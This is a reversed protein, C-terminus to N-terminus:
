ATPSKQYLHRRCVRCYWGRTTPDYLLVSRCYPCVAVRRPPKSVIKSSIGAAFVIASISVSVVVAVILWLGFAPAPPAEVHFYALSSMAATHTEDGEWSATVNWSGAEQPTISTDNYLGGTGTQITRIIPAGTPKRYTLTISVGEMAPTLYGYTALSKGLELTSRTVSCSLQIRIKGVVLPVPASFIGPYAGSPYVYARANHSGLVAPKWGYSYRGSSDTDATTLNYWSAEEARKTQITVTAVRPPGVIAMVTVSSGIEIQFSSLTCLITPLIPPPPPLTPADNSAGKTAPQFKWDANSQTDVGNPVRAWASNSAVPKSLYSTRDAELGTRDTLIVRDGAPDIITIPLNVVVYGKSAMTTGDAIIHMIGSSQSMIRWLSIDQPFGPNYLEVWQPGGSPNPDFENIVVDMGAIAQSPITRQSVILPMVLILLQALLITHKKL